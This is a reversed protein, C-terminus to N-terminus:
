FPNCAAFRAQIEQEAFQFAVRGYGRSGSGGLADLEVLKLGKFLLDEFLKDEGEFLVKFSISFDFETGEPVREIFRPNQATGNIRNISNESKVETLPWRNDKAKKKWADNLYSDAFSVRTPGFNSTEDLESGGTGFFKVIAEGKARMKDNLAQGLNKPSLPSGGTFAMFGSELELLARTKGKLSSGPIYPELKHPHKIVVRDTGGIHMEMDGSDIHLGSKLIIKGTYSCIKHLKM